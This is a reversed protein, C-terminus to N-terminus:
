LGLDINRTRLYRLLRKREETELSLVATKLMRRIRAEARQVRRRAADRSVGFSAAVQQWTMEGEVHLSLMELTEADIGDSAQAVIELLQLQEEPLDEITSAEQSDDARKLPVFRGRAGSRGYRKRLEDIALNRAITQVWRVIGGGTSSHCDAIHDAIRQMAVDTLEETTAPEDPFFLLLEQRVVPSIYVLFAFLGEVTTAALRMAFPLGEEFDGPFGPPSDQNEAM